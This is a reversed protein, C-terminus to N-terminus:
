GSSINKNQTLLKLNEIKFNMTELNNKHKDEPMPNEAFFKKEDFKRCFDEPDQNPPIKVKKLIESNKKAYLEVKNNSATTEMSVKKALMNDKSFLIITASDSPVLQVDLAKSIYNFSVTYFSRTLVNVFINIKGDNVMRNFISQESSIKKLIEIEKIADEEDWGRERESNFSDREQSMYKIVDSIILVENPNPIFEYIFKRSGIPNKFSKFQEFKDIKHLYIEETEIMNLEPTNRIIEKKIKKLSNANFDNSVHWYLHKNKLCLDFLVAITNLVQESCPKGMELNQYTKLGISVGFKEAFDGVLESQTYKLRERIKKIKNGDPLLKTMGANFLM